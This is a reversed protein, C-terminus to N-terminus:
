VQKHPSSPTQGDKVFEYGLIDLVEQKVKYNNFPQMDIHEALAIIAKEIKNLKVEKM